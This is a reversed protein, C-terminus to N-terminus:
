EEVDFDAIKVFFNQANFCTETVSQIDMRATDAKKANLVPSFSTIHFHLRPFPVLSTQFENLDVNLEGDFRLSCTLSSIPKAILRNIDDYTPREIDLSRQCIEYLAENDMVSTMENHDLLWHTSFLSNYADVVNTSYTSSPYVTFGLKSKKRYNVALRELILCALGSGTGGGIGHNIMFGQVNDCHDVLKRIRDNVKDIIEAGVTYHGRAFNNAADEKGALLFTPSYIRSYTSHKIDDIVNPELDVMLNRPIFQSDSTEEFFCLCAQDDPPVKIKTPGSKKWRHGTKNIDHEHCYNQWIIDGMQIGCQGVCISLVERVM